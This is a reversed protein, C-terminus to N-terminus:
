ESAAVSKRNLASYAIGMIMSYTLLMALSFFAPLVGLGTRTAFLGRGLM